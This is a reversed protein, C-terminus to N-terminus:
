VWSAITVIARGAKPGLTLLPPNLKLRVYIAQSIQGSGLSQLDIVAGWNAQDTSISFDSHNLQINVGNAQKSSTNKLYFSKIQTTGEPVDGWDNLSTNELGSQNCFIVDDATEGAAKMGYIHLCKISAKTNSPNSIGFRIIKKPESFSVTAINRRWLDANINATYGTIVATEWTGDIGNTSDLSGQLLITPAAFSEHSFNWGFSTIEKKEPFFFWIGGKPFAGSIEYAISAESSLNLNSKQTQTYWSAVGLALITSNTLSSSDATRIGIETGDIDYPIRRSNIETYAM